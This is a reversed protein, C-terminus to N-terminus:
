ANGVRGGKGPGVLVLGPRAANMLGDPWRMVAGCQVAGDARGVGRQPGNAPLRDNPDRSGSHVDIGRYRAWPLDRRIAQGTMVLGILWRRCVRGTLPSEGM